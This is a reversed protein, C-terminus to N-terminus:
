SIPSYSGIPCMAETPEKVSPSRAAIAPPFAFARNPSYAPTETPNVANCRAGHQAPQRGDQGCPHLALAFADSLDAKSVVNVMTQAIQPRIGSIICDTGMLRAAAITNLVHRAILDDITPVDAVDIIAVVAEHRLINELLNEMVLQTHVTDLTGTLPVALIGQWLKVVPTSLESIETQQCHILEERTRQFTEMMFLALADILEGITLM